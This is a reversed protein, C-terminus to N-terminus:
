ARLNPLLTNRLIYRTLIRKTSLGKALAYQLYDEGLITIALSRTSILWNMMFVIIISSAPL